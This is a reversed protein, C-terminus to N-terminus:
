NKVNRVFSNHKWSWQFFYNVNLRKVKNFKYKASNTMIDKINRSKTSDLKIKHNSSEKGEWFWMKSQIAKM